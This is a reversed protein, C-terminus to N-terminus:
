RLTFPSTTSPLRAGDAVPPAEVAVVEARGKGTGEDFVPECGRMSKRLIITKGIDPEGFVLLSPM